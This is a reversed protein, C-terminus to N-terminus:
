RKGDKKVYKNYTADIRDKIEKKKSSSLDFPSNNPIGDVIKKNVPNIKNQKKQAM